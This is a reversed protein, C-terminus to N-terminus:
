NAKSTKYLPAMLAAASERCQSLSRRVRRKERAKRRDRLLKLEDETLETVSLQIM